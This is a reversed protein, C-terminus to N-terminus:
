LPRRGGLGADVEHWHGVRDEGLRWCLYVLRGERDAPFDVLGTEADRLIVGDAALGEIERRLTTSAQFQAAADEGGGNLRAVDRVREATELLRRRAEQIRLLSGRLPGLM